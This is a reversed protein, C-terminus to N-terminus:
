APETQAPETQAPEADASAADGQAADGHAADGHAAADAGPASDVAAPSDTHFAFQANGLAFITGDALAGTEVKEFGSDSKLWTGNSSGLDTISWQDADDRDIRAHKRSVYSGVELGSLDIDIPGVSADFRGIIASSGVTFEVDSPSGDRLLVIKALGATAPAQDATATAEPEDM